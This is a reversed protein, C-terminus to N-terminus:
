EYKELTVREVDNGKAVCKIDFTEGPLRVDQICNKNQRKSCRKDDKAQCDPGARINTLPPVLSSVSRRQRVLALNSCLLTYM